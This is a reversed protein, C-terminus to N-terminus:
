EKPLVQNGFEGLNSSEASGTYRVKGYVRRIRGTSSKDSLRPIFGTGSPVNNELNQENEKIKEIMRSYDDAIKQYLETNYNTSEVEIESWDHPLLLNETEQDVTKESSNEIVQEENIAETSEEVNGQDVTEKSPNDIVQEAAITETSEEINDQEADSESSNEIVQEATIVETSQQDVSESAIEKTQAKQALYQVLIVLLGGIVASIVATGAIIMNTSLQIM